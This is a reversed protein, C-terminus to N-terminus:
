PVSEPISWAMSAPRQSRACPLSITPMRSSEPSRAQSEMWARRLSSSAPNGFAAMRAEFSSSSCMM